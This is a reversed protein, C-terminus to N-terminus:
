GVYFRDLTLLLGGVAHGLALVAAALAAAPARRGLAMCATAVALGYLPVVPLMYRAQEFNLGTDRRYIYGITVVLAFNGAMLLFYTLLEPRRARVRRLVRVVLTAVLVAVALYLAAAVVKTWLPFSYYSYSFRGVFGEVWVQWLPYQPFGAVVPAGEFAPEYHSPFHDHMFPLRPLFHQWTYTALGRALQFPSDGRATVGSTTTAPAREFVLTNAWLWVAFPIAFVAAGAAVPVLVPRAGRSRDRWAVLAVGLAAGPLLGFMTGKSLCGALAALGIAVGTGLSLGRHFARALLYLLAAASAFLLNDPTVAGGLFGVMPQLAVVLAGLSWAWPHRPLVERVFLFSFAVLAGVLLVSVIRMAWMREVLDRDGLSATPVAALVYYLPPNNTVYSPPRSGRRSAELRDRVLREHRESWSPWGQVSFPMGTYLHEAEDGYTGGEASLTPYGHHHAVYTVMTAHPLEDPGHMYPNIVAWALAHAVGVAVCIALAGRWGSM